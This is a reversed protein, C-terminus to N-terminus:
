KESLEDRVEQIDARIAQLICILGYLGSGSLTLHGGPSDLNFGEMLLDIKAQAAHLIEVSKM